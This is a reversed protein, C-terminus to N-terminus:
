IINIVGLIILVGGALWSAKTSDLSRAYRKGLSVGGSVFLFKCVGVLLCTVLPSYGAMAAGFGAGFADMALALGLIAAERANISGSRDFDAKEPERLLSRLSTKAKHVEGAPAEELFTSGIIYGGVLILIGGGALSAMHPPFLSAMSRGAFMAALLALSSSISVIFLSLLPVYLNRVGYAFGAGLGDISVAAALLFSSLFEM